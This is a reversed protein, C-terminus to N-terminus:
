LCPSFTREQHGEGGAVRATQAVQPRVSLVVNLLESNIDKRQYVLLPHAQLCRNLVESCLSPTSLQESNRFGPVSTLHGAALLM